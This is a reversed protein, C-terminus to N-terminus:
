LRTDVSVNRFLIKEPSYGFTVDKIQVVPISLPGPDSFIFKVNYEKDDRQLLGEKEMKKKKDNATKTQKEQLKNKEKEQLKYKKDRQKKKDVFLKEFSDYDGKYYDLRQKHLHIIDTVIYNL